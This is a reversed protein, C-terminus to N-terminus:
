LPPIPAPDNTLRGRREVLNWDSARFDPHGLPHMVVVFASQVPPVHFGM